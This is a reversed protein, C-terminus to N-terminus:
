EDFHHYGKWDSPPVNNYEKMVNFICQTPKDNPKLELVKNFLPM